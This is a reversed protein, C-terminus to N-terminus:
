GHEYGIHSPIPIPAGHHTLTLGAGQAFLGIRTAVCDRPPAFGPPAAFLLEYDDGATVAALGSM